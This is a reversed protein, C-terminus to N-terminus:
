LIDATVTGDENGGNQDVTYLVYRLADMLHNDRDVPRDGGKEPYKYSKFEKITNICNSTVYLRVYNDATKLWSRVKAIGM